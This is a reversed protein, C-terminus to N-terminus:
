DNERGPLIVSHKTISLKWGPFLKEGFTKAVDEDSFIGVFCNVEDWWGHNGKEPHTEHEKITTYINQGGTFYKKAICSWVVEPPNKEEFLLTKSEERLHDVATTGVTPSYKGGRYSQEKEGLSRALDGEDSRATVAHVYCHTSPNGWRTMLTFYVYGKFQSM